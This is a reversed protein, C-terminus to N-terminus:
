HTLHAIGGGNKLTALLEAKMGAEKISKLIHSQLEKQLSLFFGLCGNVIHMPLEKMIDRTAATGNYDVVRYGYKGKKKVKRFLVAMVKHLSDSDSGFEQLDMWEATSMKDLTIFGYEDGNLEFTDVFECEKALAISVHSIIDIYDKQEMQGVQHYKLGTFLAVIRKSKEFDDIDERKLLVDYKQFQELTIDKSDEPITIKVKM